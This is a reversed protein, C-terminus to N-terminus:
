VFFLHMYVDTVKSSAQRQSVIQAVMHGMLVIHIETLDSDKFILDPRLVRVLIQVSLALLAFSQPPTM